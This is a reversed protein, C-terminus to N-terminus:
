TCIACNYTSYCHALKSKHPSTCHNIFINRGILVLILTGIRWVGKLLLYLSVRRIRDTARLVGVLFEFLVESFLLGILLPVYFAMQQDGFILKALEGDFFVAFVAILSSLALVALLMFLTVSNQTRGEGNWLPFFKIMATQFGLMAVPLMMGTIIVSQSWIAYEVPTVIKTLVPLLFFSVMREAMMALAFFLTNKM